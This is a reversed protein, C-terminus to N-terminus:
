EQKILKSIFFGDTEDIGPILCIYGNKTEEHHYKNPFYDSIDLPKMGKEDILWKLNDINERKNITCTSFILTGGIKLYRIANELIRKQLAVLENQIEPSMNYKIDSKKSIVGLGSCPVDAIVVDAIEESTEDYITGDSIKVSINKAGIREINEEILAVKSDSIDRAEIHGKDGLLEALHIAKGGPAACMDICYADKKPDAVQAVMMSSEDQVYMKGELFADIKNLYDFDSIIIAQESLIGEKVSVNSEQLEKLLAEKTTKNTNVRVTVGNKEKNFSSIIQEAKDGYQEIVQEVLWMPTSNMISLYEKYNTNKDPYVIMDKNRSINRLVGNVFGKLNVFGRKKALSVAENCVASDPTKDMFLIQYTSMRILNRILPKMKNTKTNSFQNIVYDLLIMNEVTGELVRSLFARDSKNLYQHKQLINRTAIHLPINNKTIDILMDLVLERVNVSNTM